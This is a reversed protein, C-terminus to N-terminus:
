CYNMLRPKPNVYKSVILCEYRCRQTAARTRTVFKRWKSSFKSKTGCTSCRETRRTAAFAPFQSNRQETHFSHGWRRHKFKAALERKLKCRREGSGSFSSPLFINWTLQLLFPTIGISLSFFNTLNAHCLKHFSELIHSSQFVRISMQICLCILFFSLYFSFCISLFVPRYVM